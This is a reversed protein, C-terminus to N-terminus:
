GNIVRIRVLIAQCPQQNCRLNDNLRVVLEPDHGDENVLLALISVWSVGPRLPLRNSCSRFDEKRIMDGQCNLGSKVVRAIGTLVLAPYTLKRYRRLDSRTSLEKAAWYQACKYSVSAPRM